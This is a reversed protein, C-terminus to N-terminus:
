AAARAIAITYFRPSVDADVVKVTINNVGIELPIDALSGAYGPGAGITRSNGNIYVEVTTATAEFAVNVEDIGTAVTAAYSYRDGAFVPTLTGESITLSALDAAYSSSLTATGALKMTASITMQTPTPYSFDISKIYGEFSWRTRNAELVADPLVIQWDSVTRAVQDALLQTQSANSPIFNGDFSIEGTDMLAPIYEKTSNPSDHNTVEVDDSSLSPGNINIQEAVTVWAAGSWRQLLTGYGLRAETTM